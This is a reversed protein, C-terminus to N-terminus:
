VCVVNLVDVACTCGDVGSAGSERGCSGTNSIGLGPLVLAAEWGIARFRACRDLTQVACGCWVVGCLVM